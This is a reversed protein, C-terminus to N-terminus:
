CGDDTASPDTQPSGDAGSQRHIWSATGSQLGEALCQNEFHCVQLGLFWHPNLRELRFRSNFAEISAYDIPNGASLFELPDSQSLSM